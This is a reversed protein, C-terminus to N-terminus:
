GTCSGGGRGGGVLPGWWTVISGEDREVAVKDGGDRMERRVGRLSEGEDREQRVLESTAAAGAGAEGSGRVAPLRVVVRRAARLRGWRGRLSCHRVRVAEAERWWQGHLSCRQIRRDEDGPSAVGGGAEILLPRRRGEGCGSSRSRRGLEM